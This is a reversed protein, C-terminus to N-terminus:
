QPPPTGSPTIQSWTPAGFLPLQWVALSTGFGDNGIVLMRSHPPDLVATGTWFPYSGSLVIPNWKPDGSLTLEWLGTSYVAEQISSAPTSRSTSISWPSVANSISFELMRDHTPDYVSTHGSYAQPTADLTSWTLEGSLNLQWTDNLNPGSGSE